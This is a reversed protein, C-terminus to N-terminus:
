VRRGRARFRSCPHLSESRDFMSPRRTSWYPGPSGVRVPNRRTQSSRHAGELCVWTAAWRRRCALHLYRGSRLGSRDEYAPALCLGLVSIRVALVPRATAATDATMFVKGFGIKRILIERRPPSSSREGRWRRRIVGADGCAAAFERMIVEVDLERGPTDLYGQPDACTKVRDHLLAIQQGVARWVDERVRDDRFNVLGQTEGHVREWLSFPRDVIARSDDFAILRPTLIGAARAVPAAVSETRADVIAEPHDTAVRLVVDDTAYIRNAMGTAQLRRWSGAIGHAAFIADSYKM